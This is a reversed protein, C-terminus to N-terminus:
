SGPEVSLAEDFGREDQDDSYPQEPPCDIEPFLEPQWPRTRLHLWLFCIDPDSRHIPSNRHRRPDGPNQGVLRTIPEVTVILPALKVPAVGTLNLPTEAVNM